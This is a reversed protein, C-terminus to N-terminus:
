NFDLGQLQEELKEHNDLLSVAHSTRVVQVHIKIHGKLDLKSRFTRDCVKCDFYCFHNEYMKSNCIPCEYGVAIAEHIKIHNNLSQLSSFLKRCVSCRLFGLDESKLKESHNRECHRLLNNSRASRYSCILCKFYKIEGHKLELHRKLNYSDRFGRVCVDCKFRLTKLHVTIYHRKRLLRSAFKKNCNLDSCNHVKKVTSVVSIKRNKKRKNKGSKNKPKLIHCPLIHSIYLKRKRELRQGCQRCEYLAGGDVKRLTLINEDMMKLRKLRLELLTKLRQSPKQKKNINKSNMKVDIVDHDPVNLTFQEEFVRSTVYLSKKLSQSFHSFVSDYELDLYESEFVLNEEYHDFSVNISVFDWIDCVEESSIEFNVLLENEFNCDFKYPELVDQKLVDWIVSYPIDNDMTGIVDLYCDEFENSRIYKIFKESKAQNWYQNFNQM